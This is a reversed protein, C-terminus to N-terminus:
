NPWPYFQAYDELDPESIPIADATMRGDQWQYLEIRYWNGRTDRMVPEKPGDWVTDVEIYWRAMDEVIDGYMMYDQFRMYEDVSRLKGTQGTFLFLLLFVTLGWSLVKGFVSQANWKVARKVRLAADCEGFTMGVGWMHRGSGLEVLTRAYERRDNGNLREMVAEDCALEMDRCTLRRALWLVPNWWNLINFLAMVHKLDIHGSNIHELEHMLVLRRQEESLEKQICIIYHLEPANKDVTRRVYSTLLNECVIVRVAGDGIPKRPEVDLPVIEGRREWDKLGREQRDSWWFYIVFFAVTALSLVDLMVTTMEFSVETGWPLAATYKGAGVFDDPLYAPYDDGWAQRPMLLGRLTVPLICLNGMLKSGAIWWGSFWGLFWVINRYKPRLLRNSVPRLLIVVCFILSTLLAVNIWVMAMRLPLWRIFQIAKEFFTM